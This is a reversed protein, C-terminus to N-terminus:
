AGTAEADGAEDGAAAEGKDQIEKWRQWWPDAGDEPTIQVYDLIQFRVKGGLSDLRNESSAGFVEQAERYADRAAEPEGLADLVNGLNMLTFAVYDKYRASDAETLRRYIAVAERYADRASEREGLDTLVNGVNNLTMGVWHEFEAPHAKALRRYIALGEDYADRASELEGLDGLVNGLSKLTMAVYQEFAAPHAESLRRYIPLADRFAERASESQHLPGLINGLNYLTAAVYQEFAAPHAEALHRYIPLAERFTERASEWDGMARLLLGLNNLTTAMDQEFAAPHADDLRQYISLAERFADRAAEREGSDGLVNGFSVLASALAPEYAEGQELVLDRYCQVAEDLAEAAEHRNGLLRQVSGTIRQLRAYAEGNDSPAITQRAEDLVRAAEAAADLGETGPLESLAAALGLLARLRDEDSLSGDTLQERYFTVNARAALDPMTEAPQTTLGERGAPVTTRGAPEPRVMRVLGTFHDFFDPAHRRLAAFSRPGCWVILPVPFRAEIAERSHNLIAFTPRRKDGHRLGPTQELGHLLIAQAGDDKRCEAVMAAVPDSRDYSLEVVRLGMGDAELDASLRAILHDREAPALNSEVPVLAFMGRAARLLRLLRAYQRAGDDGVLTAVEDRSSVVTDESPRKSSM